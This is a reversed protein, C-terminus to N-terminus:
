LVVVKLGYYRGTSEIEKLEVPFLDEMASRVVFYVPESYNFAEVHDILEKFSDADYSM